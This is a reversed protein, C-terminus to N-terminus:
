VTQKNIINELPEGIRKVSLEFREDIRNKVRQIAALDTIPSSNFLVVIRQFDSYELSIDSKNLICSCADKLIHQVNKAEHEIFAEGSKKKLTFIFVSTPIDKKESLKVLYAIMRIFTPRKINHIEPHEEQMMLVREIHSSTFVAGRSDTEMGDITDVAMKKEEILRCFIRALEPDYQTGSCRKIETMVADDTLRGRYVRNSTMADYGDALCLIRAFLPIEEGKLGDPYGNGDFREHHHRVAPSLVGNDDIAQVLEYGIVSHRKMLEYEEDNLKGAKNLIMDPIGIKGIDHLLGVYHLMAIDSDSLRYDGAIEKALISAYKAVRNSHGGTYEDKADIANAVTEITAITMKERQIRMDNAKKLEEYVVQVVTVALLFLLGVCLAAGLTYSDLIYYGLMELGCFVAFFLMGTAAFSYQKIRGSRIDITIAIAFTILGVAMWLHSLWLTSHFGAIKSFSLVANIFAQGFILTSIALYAKRYKYKQMENFYLAIFGGVLEIFLYSFFISYSPSRFILQRINSESIIWFGVIMMVKGLFLVSKGTRIVNRLMYHALSAFFGVIILIFAAMDVPVSSGIVHFWANNGYGITIENLVCQKKPIIEITIPKGADDDILDIMVYSSPPYPTVLAMGESTYSGRLEGEIYFRIDQLDTRACLRMGSDIYEPLTNKMTVVTNAPCNITAPLTVNYGGSVTEVSWNNNFDNVYFDGIYAEGSVPSGFLAIVFFMVAIILLINGIRIIFKNLNIM